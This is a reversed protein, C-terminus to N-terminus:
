CVYLQPSKSLWFERMLVTYVWPLDVLNPGFGIIRQTKTSCFAVLQVLM